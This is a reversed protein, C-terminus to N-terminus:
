SPNTPTKLLYKTDALEFPLVTLIRQKSTQEATAKKYVVKILKNKYSVIHVSTNNSSQRVPFSKNNTILKMIKNLDKYSFNIGYRQTLRDKAHSTM